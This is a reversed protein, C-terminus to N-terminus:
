CDFTTRFTDGCLFSLKESRSRKSLFEGVITKISKKSIKSHKLHFIM